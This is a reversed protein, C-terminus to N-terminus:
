SVLGTVPRTPHVHADSQAPMRGHCSARPAVARRHTRSPVPGVFGIQRLRKGTSQALEYVFSNQGSQHTPQTVSPFAPAWRAIRDRARLYHRPARTPGHLARGTALARAPSKAARDSRHTLPGGPVRVALEHTRTAHPM